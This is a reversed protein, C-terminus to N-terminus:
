LSKLVKALNSSFLGQAWEQDEYNKLIFRTGAYIFSVYLAFEYFEMRAIDLDERMFYQEYIPTSFRVKMFAHEVEVDFFKLGDIDIFYVTQDAKRILIHELGLEGHILHYTTRPALHASLERLKHEIRMKHKAVNKHTESAAALELLARQLTIEICSQSQQSSIDLLTGPYDRQTHNLKRTMAGIQKLVTNRASPSADTAFETFNGGAIFEVLAFDYGSALQGMHYIRPVNISNKLLYAANVKFLTPASADSQTTDIGERESFYHNLDHWIYLVCRDQPQKLDIFFVQKRAGHKFQEVGAIECRNGFVQRLPQLVERENFDAQKM